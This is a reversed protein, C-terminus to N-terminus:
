DKKIHFHKPCLVDEVESFLGNVGIYTCQIIEGFVDEANNTLLVQFMEMVWGPSNLYIRHNIAHSGM